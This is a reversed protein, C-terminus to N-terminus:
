RLDRLQRMLREVKRHSLSHPACFDNWEIDPFGKRTLREPLHCRVIELNQASLEVLCSFIAHHVPERWCYSRLLATGLERVSGKITGGCMAQLVQREVRVRAENNLAPSM